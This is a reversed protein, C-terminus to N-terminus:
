RIGHAGATVMYALPTPERLTSTTGHTSSTGEIQEDEQRPMSSSGLEPMTPVGDFRVGDHLSRAVHLVMWPDIVGECIYDHSPDNSGGQSMSRIIGNHLPLADQTFWCDMVFPERHMARGESDVLVFDDM